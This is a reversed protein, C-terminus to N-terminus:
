LQHCGQSSRLVAMNSSSPSRNPPQIHDVQYLLTAHDGFIGHRFGGFSFESAILEKVALEALVGQLEAIHDLCARGSSLPWLTGMHKSPTYLM